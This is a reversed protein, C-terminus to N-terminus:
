KEGTVIPETGKPRDGELYEGKVLYYIQEAINTTHDGIREINKTVFLLHTGDSLNKENEKLYKIVEQMCLNTLDDIQEDSEWVNIAMASSRELYADLISKLQKQVDSSVRIIADVLNKPLNENLLLTRKSINKALDGIRELDSSIKLATVTERLDIAMPQRLAILNVVQQEILTEFKDIKEDDKIVAEANDSNRTTIAQIAKGLSKECFGGMKIINSNLNKLEEEYSKVTHPAETM